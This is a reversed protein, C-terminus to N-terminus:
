RSRGIRIGSTENQKVVHVQVDVREAIVPVHSILGIQTGNAAIRRLAEVVPEVTDVDLSGFGEDIFLTQVNVSRSSLRGLALALLM